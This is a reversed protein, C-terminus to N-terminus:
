ARHAVERIHSSTAEVVDAWGNVWGTSRNLVTAQRRVVFQMGRPTKILDVQANAVTHLKSGTKTSATVKADVLTWYRVTDVAAGADVHAEIALERAVGNCYVTATARITERGKFPLPERTINSLLSIM